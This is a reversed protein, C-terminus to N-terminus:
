EIRPKNANEELNPKLDAFQYGCEVVVLSQEDQGYILHFVFQHSQNSNNPDPLIFTFLNLLDGWPAYCKRLTPSPHAAFSDRLCNEMSSRIDAPIDWAAMKKEIVEPIRVHYNGPM